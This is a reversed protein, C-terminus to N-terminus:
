NRETDLNCCLGGVLSHGKPQGGLESGSPTRPRITASMTLQQGKFIKSGTTRMTSIKQM